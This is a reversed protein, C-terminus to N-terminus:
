RSILSSALTRTPSSSPARATSPSSHSARGLRWSRPEILHELLRDLVPYAEGNTQPLLSRDPPPSPCPPLRLPDVCIECRTQGGKMEVALIVLVDLVGVEIQPRDGLAHGM